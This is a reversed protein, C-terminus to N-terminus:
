VVVHSRVILPISYFIWSDQYQDRRIWLKSYGNYCNTIVSFLRLFLKSLFHGHTITTHLLGHSFGHNAQCHKCVQTHNIARTIYRFIFELRPIIHLPPPQSKRVLMRTRLNLTQQTQSQVQLACLFPLCQSRIAISFECIKNWPMSLIIHINMYINCCVIKISVFFTTNM